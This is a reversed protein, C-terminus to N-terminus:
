YSPAVVMSFLVVFDTIAAIREGADSRLLVGGIWYRNWDTWVRDMGKDRDRGELFRRICSHGTDSEIGRLRIASQAAAQDDLIGLSSVLGDHSRHRRRVM